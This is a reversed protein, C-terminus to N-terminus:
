ISHDICEKLSLYPSSVEEDQHESHSSHYEISQQDRLVFTNGYSIHVIMLCVEM